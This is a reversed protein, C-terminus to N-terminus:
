SNPPPNGDPPPDGDPPYYPGCNPGCYGSSNWYSCCNSFDVSDYADSDYYWGGGGGGPNGWWGACAIYSTGGVYYGCSGNYDMTWGCFGYQMALRCPLYLATGVCGSAEDTKTYVYGYPEDTPPITTFDGVSQGPDDENVTASCAPVCRYWFGPGCLEYMKKSTEVKLKTYGPECTSDPGLKLGTAKSREEYDYLWEGPENPKCASVCFCWDIEACNCQETSLAKVCFPGLTSLPEDRDSCAFYTIQLENGYGKWQSQDLTELGTFHYCAEVPNYGSIPNCYPTCKYCLQPDCGEGVFQAMELKNTTGYISTNGCGSGGYTYPEWGAGCRCATSCRYWTAGACSGDEADETTVERLTTGEECTPAVNLVWEYVDDPAEPYCPNKCTSCQARACYPDNPDIETERTVLILYDDCSTTSLSYVYGSGESNTLVDCSCPPACAKCPSKCDSTVTNDVVGTVTCEYDEYITGLQREDQACVYTESNEKVWALGGSTNSACDCDCDMEKYCLRSRCEMVTEATEPTSLYQDIFKYESSPDPPDPPPEDKEYSVSTYGNNCPCECGCDIGDCYPFGGPVDLINPMGPVGVRENTFSLSSWSGIASDIDFLISNETSTLQERQNPTKNKLLIIIINLKIKLASLFAINRSVSRLFYNRKIRLQRINKELDTFIRGGRNTGDTCWQACDDQSSMYRMFERSQQGVTYFTNAISRVQEPTSTRSNVQCTSFYLHDLPTWSPNNLSYIDNFISLRSSEEDPLPLGVWICDYWRTGECKLVSVGDKKIRTTKTNTVVLIHGDGACSKPSTSWDGLTRPRCYPVCMTWRGAVCGQQTNSQTSLIHMSEDTGCTHTQSEPYIAHIQKPPECIPDCRYWSAGVCYDAVSQTTVFTPLYTASCEIVQGPTTYLNWVGPLEPVCYSGLVDPLMPKSITVLNTAHSSLEIM